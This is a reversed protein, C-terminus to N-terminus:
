EPMPVAEQEAPTGVDALAFDTTDAPVNWYAKAWAIKTYDNWWWLDEFLKRYNVEKEKSKVFRIAHRIHQCIEDRDSCALLRRFRTHPEKEDRMKKKGEPEALRAELFTWGFNRKADEKPDDHPVWIVPNLSFCGAVTQYVPNDVAMPGFWPGLVTWAEHQTTESLGRRLRALVGRDQREHWEELKKVLEEARKQVERPKM